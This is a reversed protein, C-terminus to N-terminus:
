RSAEKGTVFFEYRDGRKRWKAFCQGCRQISNATSSLYGCAPCKIDRGVGSLLVASAPKWAM